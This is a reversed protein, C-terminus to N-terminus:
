DQRRKTFRALEGNNALDLRETRRLIEGIEQSSIYPRSHWFTFVWPLMMGHRAFSFFVRVRKGLGIRPAREGPLDSQMGRLMRLTNEAVQLDEIIYQGGPKLRPFLFALSAQQHMPRHSGDDIIIDFEGGSFEVFRALDARNSQDGVFTAIRDNDFRHADVIDYGFITAKPFYEYWGKLSAGPMRADSVGIELLRLSENRMPELWREYVPTYGHAEGMVTGKDSNNTNM